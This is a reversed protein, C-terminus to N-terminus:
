ALSFSMTVSVSGQIKPRVTLHAFLWVMKVAVPANGYRAPEFRSRTAGDMVSPPAPDGSILEVDIVRGQRTITANLAWLEEDRTVLPPVSVLSDYYSPRPMAITRADMQVPAESSLADILAALSDPRENRSCLHLLSVTIALCALTAAAGGLAAWILHLDEFMRDFTRPLSEHDEAKLRSVVGGALGDLDHSDFLHADENVSARLLAGVTAFDESKANCTACGRLHAQVGVRAEITLEGDHYEALRHRVASCSWTM